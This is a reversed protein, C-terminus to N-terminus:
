QNPDSQNPDSQNPESLPVGLGRVALMDNPQYRCTQMLYTTFENYQMDDIMHMDRMMALLVTIQGTILTKTVVTRVKEDQIDATANAVTTRYSIMRCLADQFGSSLDSHLEQIAQQFSKDQM